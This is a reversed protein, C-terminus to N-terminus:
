DIAAFILRSEEHGAAFDLLRHYHDALYDCGRFSMSMHSLTFLTAIIGASDSSVEANFGNGDWALNMRERGEPAMYMAGENTEYFQWFGGHYDSSLAEMFSYVANEGTVMLRHGFLKPLFEMRRAEPILTLTANTSTQTNATM